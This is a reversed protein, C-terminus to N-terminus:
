NKARSCPLVARWAHSEAKAAVAGAAIGISANLCFVPQARWVVRAGDSETKGTNLSGGMM